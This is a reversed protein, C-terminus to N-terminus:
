GKKRIPFGYVFGTMGFGVPKVNHEYQNFPPYYPYHVQNKSSQVGGGVKLFWRFNDKFDVKLELGMFGKISESYESNLVLEQAPPDYYRVREQYYYMFQAFASIDAKHESHLIIYSYDLIFGTAGFVRKPAYYFRNQGFTPGVIFRQRKKELGLALGLSPRLFIDNFDVVLGVDFTLTQEGVEKENIDVKTQACLLAPAAIILLFILLRIKYIM